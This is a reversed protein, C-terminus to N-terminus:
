RAREETHPTAAPPTATAATSTASPSPAGRSPPPAAGLVALVVGHPEVDAALADGSVALANGTWVDVADAARPVGLESFTTEVKAPLEGRNFLAVATRGGDLPRSWVELAGRRAVHKGARGLPDQDIAIVARNTLIALTEPSSRRVDHGAILPAALLAWLTMHSRYEASTMGGNGVELMDPDNWHGPGAFPSLEDQAFGIASVVPWRDAIDGTTRWLNGGAAAGWRWVDARGYQCISYVMPRGTKRLAEAMKQYVAPMDADDYILGASCWDYKVYDIGWTAYTQADQEEHGYSGPFGACSKPGPSTYIGLKLGREHLYDALAKMDPFKANPQLVGSADRTGQWGDDINVHVYGADRLGTAVLADAIGRITRDDIETAFHNWTSFGMPPTRALGNAPLATPKPLPEKKPAIRELIASEEPTVRRMEAPPEGPGGIILRDGRLAGEFPQEMGRAMVIAFQIRDGDRKATVPVGM